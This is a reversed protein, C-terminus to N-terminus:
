PEDHQFHYILERFMGNLKTTPTPGQTTQVAIASLGLWTIALADHVSRSLDIYSCAEQFVCVTSSIAFGHMPGLNTPTNQYRYATLNKPTTVDM